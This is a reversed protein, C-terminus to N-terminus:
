PGELALAVSREILKARLVRGSPRLVVPLDDGVDADAGAFGGIRVEVLGQRVLLTLAGGRTADPTAAESSLTLEVPVAIRALVDEGVRLTVMAVTSLTGARRPARPLEATVATWGAPAEIVRPARVASLTAGRPLRAAPLAERVLRDLDAPTLAVMRRTIRVSEPIRPTPGDPARQLAERIQARTLLRSGNPAPAPGLDIDALSPPANRIVDVVRVRPSSVEVHLPPDARAVRQTLGLTALLALTSLAHARM